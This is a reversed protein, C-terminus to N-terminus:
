KVATTHVLLARGAIYDRADIGASARAIYTAAPNWKKGALKGEEDIVLIYDEMGEAVGESAFPLPVIEIMDCQLRKYLTELPIGDALDATAHIVSTGYQDGMDDDIPLLLLAQHDAGSAVRDLMEFAETTSTHYTGREATPDITDSM